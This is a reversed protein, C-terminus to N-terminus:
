RNREFKKLYNQIKKVNEQNEFFITDEYVDTYERHLWESQELKTKCWHKALFRYDSHFPVPNNSGSAMWKQKHEFIEVPTM